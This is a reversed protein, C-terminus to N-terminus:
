RYIDRRHGVSIIWVTSEKITYIVRYDGVKLRYKGKLKGDLAKGEGYPNEGLKNLADLM